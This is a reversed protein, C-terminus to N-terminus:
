FHVNYTQNLKQGTVKVTVYDPRTSSFGLGSMQGEIPQCKTKNGLVEFVKRHKDLSSKLFENYIGRTPEDNECGELIFFWHKNGVANDDWYNPSFMVTNVKVFSETKIGWIDKSTAAHPLHHKITFEGARLTVEAVTVWEKHQLPQRYEYEFVQGAFEIEAKFGGQNPSRMTWNHIKCIYTGEPMLRLEPFTINEVPVYGAPAAQTYDVDQIGKTPGHIRLNWGVRQNNGYNDHQGNGAVINTGPIFVHLDMLSANREAYNWQHSFRFAGTVSGGRGAVARRIESDTIEGKYSWAFNNSWKFLSEVDQHVPATISMLNSQHRNSVFMEMSQVKPLVTSMFEEIGIDEAAGVKPKAVVASMLLDELGGKMVKRAENDVWLVNNVSVDSLKAFRRQLADELNLEQITEMAQKVMSASIVATPRKYNAPAVKAEFSKVAAEVDMGGSLDTLLTGIATNRIRANHNLANVWLFHNRDRANKSLYTAQTKLFDDVSKKFEAGRYLANSAILDAVTELAEPTIEELGRKFVDVTTNFDGLVTGLDKSFHRNDIDAHFHFWRHTDGNALREVTSEYGLKKENIRFLSSVFANKVMLDLAECVTNYPHELGKLDWITVLGKDTIAVVNGVRRIFNKDYSGDHETRVRFMPNSGSPFAALYAAWLTDGDINVRFLEQKSLKTFNSALEAAFPKFNSM